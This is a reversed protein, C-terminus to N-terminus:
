IRSRAATAARRDHNMDDATIFLMNLKAPAADAASLAAAWATLLVVCLWLRPFATLIALRLNMAPEKGALPTTRAERLTGDRREPHQAAVDMSEAPDKALDYLADGGQSPRAIQCEAAATGPIFKWRGERIAVKGSHELVHERGQPSEGLLAPLM